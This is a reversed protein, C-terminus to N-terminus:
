QEKRNGNNGERAWQEKRRESKGESVESKERSREGNVGEGDRGRLMAGQDIWLSRRFQANTMVVYLRGEKM